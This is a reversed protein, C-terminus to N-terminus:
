YGTKWSGRELNEEMGICRALRPLWNVDAGGGRRLEVKRGGDRGYLRGRDVVLFPKTSKGKPVSSLIVHFNM